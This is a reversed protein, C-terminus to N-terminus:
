LTSHSGYWSISVVGRIRREFNVQSGSTSNSSCRLESRQMCPWFSQVTPKEFSKVKWSSIAGTAEAKQNDLRLFHNCIWSLPGSIYQSWPFIVTTWQWINVEQPRLAVFSLVLVSSASCQNSYKGDLDHQSYWHKDRGSSYSQCALSIKTLSLCYWTSLVIKPLAVLVEMLIM